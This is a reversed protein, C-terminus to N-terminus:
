AARTILQDFGASVIETASKAIGLPQIIVGAGAAPVTATVGGATGLFYRTAIALGTLGANTGDTYLVGAGGNLVASVVYGDAQRGNSNDALRGKLTTDLHLNVYEGAGIDESATFAVTEAAIGLPMFTSDLRGTSDVAPIKGGDGAGASSQIARQEAPKGDAGTKLYSDGAM